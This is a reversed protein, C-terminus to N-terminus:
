SFLFVLFTQGVFRILFVFKGYIVEFKENTM